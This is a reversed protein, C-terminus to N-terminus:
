QLNEYNKGNVLVSKGYTCTIKAEKLLTQLKRDLLKQINRIVKM